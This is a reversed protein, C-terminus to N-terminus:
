EPVGQCTDCLWAECDEVTYRHVEGRDGCAECNGCECDASDKDCVHCSWEVPDPPELHSGPTAIPEWYTM